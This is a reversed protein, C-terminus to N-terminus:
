WLRIETPAMEVRLNHLNLLHWILIYHYGNSKCNSDLNVMNKNLKVVNQHLNSTEDFKQLNKTDLNYKLKGM